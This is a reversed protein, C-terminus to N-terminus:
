DGNDNVHSCAAFASVVIILHELLLVMTVCRMGTKRVIAASVLEVNDM